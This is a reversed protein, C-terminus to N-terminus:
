GVKLKVKLILLLVEVVQKKGYKNIVNKVLIQKIVKLMSVNLMLNLIMTLKIKKKQNQYNIGITILTKKLKKM